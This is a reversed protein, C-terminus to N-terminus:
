QPEVAGYYRWAAAALLMTVLAACPAALVSGAALWITLPGLWAMRLAFLQNAERIATKAGRSSLYLALTSVFVPVLAALCTILIFPGLTLGRWRHGGIWYAPLAAAAFALILPNWVLRPLHAM